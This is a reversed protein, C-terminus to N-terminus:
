AYLDFNDIDTQNIILNFLSNTNGYGSSGIILIRYPHNFVQPWSQNHEKINEKTIVYTEMLAILQMRKDNNLSLAIKNIEEIFVNDYESKFRKQSKLILKNNKIFEKHKRKYSNINTKHKELCNM